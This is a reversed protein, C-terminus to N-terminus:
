ISGGDVDGTTQFFWSLADVMPTGVVIITIFPVLQTHVFPTLLLTWWVIGLLVYLAVFFIHENVIRRFIFLM